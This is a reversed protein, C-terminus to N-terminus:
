RENKIDDSSPSNNDDENRLIRPNEDERPGANTPHLCEIRYIEIYMGLSFM